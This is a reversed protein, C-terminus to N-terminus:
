IVEGIRAYIGYVRMDQTVKGFDVDWSVFRYGSMNADREEENPAIAGDENLVMVSSVLNNFGDYFDVRFYIIPIYRPEFHLDEEGMTYPKTLDVEEGNLLWGKFIYGDRPEAGPLDFTEGKIYAQQNKGDFDVIKANENQYHIHITYSHDESGFVDSVNLTATADFMNPAYESVVYKGDIIDFYQSDEIFSDVFRVTVGDGPVFCSDMVKLEENYKFKKISTSMSLGDLVMFKMTPTDDIKTEKKSLNVVEDVHNQIRNPNGLTFFPYKGSWITWNGYGKGLIVVKLSVELKVGLEIQFGFDVNWDKSVFDYVFGGFGTVTFYVRADIDLALSILWKIGTISFTFRVKGGFEFNFQGIAEVSLVSSKLGTQSAGGNTKNGNNTSYNIVTTTSEYTWGLGINISFSSALTLYFEISFTVYGLYFDVYGINFLTLGSETKDRKTDFLGAEKWVNKLNEVAEKAAKPNLYTPDKYEPGPNFTSHILMISAKVNVKDTKDAAISMDVWYPVGLFKSVEADASVVYTEEWTVTINLAVTWGSEFTHTFLIVFQLSIGADVFKFSISLSASKLFDVVSGLNNGFNYEYATYAVYDQVMDSNILSEYIEEKSNLHIGACDVKEDDVHLDLSKFIEKTEPVVYSIRTNKGEKATSVVKIYVTDNKHEDNSNSNEFRVVDGENLEIDGKYLLTLHPELPDTNELVNELPYTEINDVLEMENKDEEKVTFYITRVSEDLSHNVYFKYCSEKLDVKYAKGPTYPESPEITLMNTGNDLSATYTLSEDNSNTIDLITTDTTFSSLLRQGSSNKLGFTFNTSVDRFTSQYSEADTLDIEHLDEDYDPEDFDEEKVTIDPLERKLNPKANGNACSTVVMACPLLIVCIKKFISRRMTKEELENKTPILM